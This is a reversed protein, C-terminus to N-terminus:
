RRPLLLLLALPAAVLVWMATGLGVFEALGGVGLPILAGGIGALGGVAIAAGSQGPLAGYLGAKPIAYWGSNLLGLAGLLVLKPVLGGLLLFAPYCALVVLASVRLYVVGRVRRLLPILLADGVLGAGTWVAVALSAEVASSGAVDVFYLALFGHFVDLLLDSAELVALWRLVERRRLAGVAGRLARCVSVGDKPVPMAVRRTAFALPLAGLALAFLAGRWGIGIWIAAALLVPGGVYGVSGALTWWAMRPERREPGLDMLTAQSLSVFAGSAPHGIVLAVLLTWFGVSVSTLAASLAFGLGGLLLAARRRGTDGLVGILPDLGSGIVGPIALLLGIEAYTLGLDTRIL